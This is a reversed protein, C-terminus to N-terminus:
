KESTLEGAEKYYENKHYLGFLVKQQRLHRPFHREREFEVYCAAMPWKHSSHPSSRGEDEGVFKKLDTSTYHTHIQTSYFLLIKTGHQIHEERKEIHHLKYCFKNSQPEVTMSVIIIISKRVFKWNYM